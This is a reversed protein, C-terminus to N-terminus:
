GNDPHGGWINLARLIGKKTPTVDVPEAIERCPPYGDRKREAAERRAAAKSPHFSFGGCNNEVSLYANRYLRM